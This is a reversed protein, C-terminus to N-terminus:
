ITPWIFDTTSFCTIMWSTKCAFINACGSFECATSWWWPLKSKKRCFVILFVLLILLWAWFIPNRRELLSVSWCLWNNNCSFYSSSALWSKVWSQVALNLGFWRTLHASSVVTTWDKELHQCALSNITSKLADTTILTILGVSDENPTWNKPSRVKVVLVLKRTM